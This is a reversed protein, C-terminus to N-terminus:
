NDQELNMEESELNFDTTNILENAFSDIEGLVHSPSLNKYDLLLNTNECDQDYQAEDSIMYKLAANFRLTDKIEEDQYIKLYANSLEESPATRVARLIQSDIKKTYQENALNYIKEVINEYEPNEKLLLCNDNIVFEDTNHDYYGLILSNNANDPMSSSDTCNTMVKNTASITYDLEIPNTYGTTIGVQGEIAGCYLKISIADPMILVLNADSNYYKYSKFRDHYDTNITGGNVVTSAISGRNFKFDNQPDNTIAEANEKPCGHIYMKFPRESNIFQMLENFKEMPMRM